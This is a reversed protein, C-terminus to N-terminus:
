RVEDFLQMGNKSRQEKSPDQFVPHTKFQNIPLNWHPHYIRTYVLAHTWQYKVNLYHLSIGM